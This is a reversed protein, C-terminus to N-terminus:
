GRLRVALRAVDALVADRAAAPARSETVYAAVILPRADGRGGPPPWCAAVDNSTGRNGTGTKDGVTWGSPVGIRLRTDGTRCARLWGILRDRSAPSLASGAVLRRLDEAMAAPTTTDRPDGPVAENLDPENRDLRTATDGLSRAFRTVAAPGGLAALLLNAATNDSVTMAAACLDEVSMAGEGVRATTIPAYSLLDAKGYAITRLLQETGRDVRALTAGALLLKFTSCMPFREGARRGARRGTELDLIAVGLRGGSRAELRTLERGAGATEQALFGIPLAAARLLAERRTM